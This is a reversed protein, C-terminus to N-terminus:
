GSEQTFFHEDESNSGNAASPRATRVDDPVTSRRPKVVPVVAAAAQLAAMREREPTTVDTGTWIGQPSTTDTGTKADAPFAEHL